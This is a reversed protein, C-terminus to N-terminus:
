RSLAIGSPPPNPPPYLGRAGLFTDALTKFKALLRYLFCKSSRTKPYFNVHIPETRQQVSNAIQLRHLNSRRNGRTKIKRERLAPPM